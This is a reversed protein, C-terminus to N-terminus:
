TDHYCASMTLDSLTKGLNRVCELSLLKIGNKRKVPWPFRTKPQECCLPIYVSRVVTILEGLHCLSSVKINNLIEVLLSLYMGEKGLM